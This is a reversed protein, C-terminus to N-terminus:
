LSLNHNKLAKANQKSCYFNYTVRQLRLYMYITHCLLLSGLPKMGDWTSGIPVSTRKEMERRSGVYDSIEAWGIASRAAQTWAQIKRPKNQGSSPPSINMRFTPQSEVSHVVKKM